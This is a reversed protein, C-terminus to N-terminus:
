ASKQSNGYSIPDKGARFEYSLPTNQDQWERCEFTFETELAVGEIVSAKCYGSHPAEATEFELAGFGESGALSTVILTLRFKFGSSLSKKKIIINNSNMATSTINPTIAVNEWKYEEANLKTLHWEYASGNCASNLCM